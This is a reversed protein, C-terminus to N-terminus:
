FFILKKGNRINTNSIIEKLNYFKGTNGDMVAHGSNSELQYDSLGSIAKSILNVIEGVPLDLPIYIDYNQGLKVVYVNVLVKNKM